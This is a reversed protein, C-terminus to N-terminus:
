ETLQTVTVKVDNLNFEALKTAEAGAPLEFEVVVDTADNLAALKEPGFTLTPSTFTENAYEARVVSLESGVFDRDFGEVTLTVGKFNKGDATVDLPQTLRIHDGPVMKDNDIDWAANKNVDFWSRTGESSVTLTGTQITGAKIDADDSWVAYTGFGGALLAIGATGAIAGTIMKNM